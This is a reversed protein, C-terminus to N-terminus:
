RSGQGVTAVQSPAPTTLVVVADRRVDAYEESCPYGSHQRVTPDLIEGGCPALADPDRVKVDVNVDPVDGIEWGMPDTLRYFSKWRPTGSGDRVLQAVRQRAQRGFFAPFVRGYLRTLQTGYTLLFIRSRHEARMQLIAAVALIAGQSHGALIVARDPIGCIRTLLQPVAREGYSPPAFPHAGRPWFTAIDWVTGLTKRPSPSRYALGVLAALGLLLLGALVSGVDTLWKVVAVVAGSVSWASMLEVPSKGTFTGAVGVIAFAVVVLALWGVWRLGQEGVIRHIARWRAVDRARREEHAYNPNGQLVQFEEIVGPVEARGFAGLKRAAVVVVVVLPVVFLVFGMASWLLAPPVEVASASSTVTAGGNLWDAVWFLAAASYLSGIAWGAGAILAASRGGWAPETSLRDRDSGGVLSVAAVAVGIVVVCLFLAGAGVWAVVRDYTLAAAATGALGVVVAVVLRSVNKALAALLLVLLFQAVFLGNVAGAFGPLTGDILARTGTRAPVLLYAATVPVGAVACWFAASVM